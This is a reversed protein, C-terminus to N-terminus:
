KFANEPEVPAFFRSEMISKPSTTTVLPEDIGALSYTLRKRFSSLLGREFDVSIVKAKITRDTYNQFHVVDGKKFEAKM